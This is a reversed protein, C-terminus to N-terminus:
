NALVITEGPKFDRTGTICDRIVGAIVSPDLTKDAPITKEDFNQRLMATEVAGPAVAVARIGHRKGEQATCHTFMNVGIKAAAYMSFGPFPDVSALSSVNVVVGAKQRQLTPWIAATTLVVSSLNTDVCARWSEATIAEIPGLPASGAVNALADVREFRELTRGILNRVADPDTLDTPVVLTERRGEFEEGIMEATDRLASETRAALALDYGAEALLVATDRGIGSGAGTVIAIKPQSM